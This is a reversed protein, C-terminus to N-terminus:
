PTYGYNIFIEENLEINRLVIFWIRGKIIDAECNPHSSHNLFKCKNYDFNGDIDTHKNLIFIYVNGNKLRLKAESKNIKEGTYEFIKTGKIIDKRAFVGYNHIKSKKIHTYSNNIKV